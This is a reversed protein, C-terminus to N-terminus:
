DTLITFDINKYMKQIEERMINEGFCQRVKIKWVQTVKDLTAIVEQHIIFRVMLNLLWQYHQSNKVRLHFNRVSWWLCKYKVKLLFFIRHHQCKNIKSKILYRTKEPVGNNKVSIQSSTLSEQMQCRSIKNISIEQIILKTWSLTKRSKVIQSKQSYILM